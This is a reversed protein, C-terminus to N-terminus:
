KRSRRRENRRAQTDSAIAIACQGMAKADNEDGKIHGPGAYSHWTAPHIPIFFRCEVSAMVAGVSRHLNVQGKLSGSRDVGFRKLPVDEVILVDYTSQFERQLTRGLERLREHLDANPGGVDIVGSEELEGARFVAFGPLSTGGGSAPDIVLVSGRLIAEAAGRKQIALHGKSTGKPRRRRTTM